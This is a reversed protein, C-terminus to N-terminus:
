GEMRATYKMFPEPMHWIGSFGKPLVFADGARFNNKIGREDDTVEVSGEIVICVEHFHRNEIHLTGATSRWGGVAFQGTDDRYDCNGHVIIPDGIPKDCPDLDCSPLSFRSIRPVKTETKNDSLLHSSYKMFSVPMHWTGTFQAPLVFADGPGYVRKIGHEDTIEVYGEMVFCAEHMHLNKINLTGATSRWSGAGFRGTEDHYSYIGHVANEGDGPNDCPEHKCVPMDYRLLRTVISTDTMNIDGSNNFQMDRTREYDFVNCIDKM